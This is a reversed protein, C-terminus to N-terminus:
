VKPEGVMLRLRRQDCASRREVGSLPLTSYGDEFPQHVEGRYFALAHQVRLGLSIDDEERRQSGHEGRVLARVVEDVLADCREGVDGDLGVGAIRCRKALAVPDAVEVDDGFDATPSHPDDVRRAVACEAPHGGELQQRDGHAPIGGGAFSEDGFCLGRRREVMGVDRRDVLDSRRRIAVAEDRHGPILTFRQALPEGTTRNGRAVREVDRALHGRTQRRRVLRPQHVAIHLRLVDEDRAVTEHLQEVEPDRRQDTGRTFARRRGARDPVHTRLM